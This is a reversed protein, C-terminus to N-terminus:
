KTEQTEKLHRVTAAVGHELEYELVDALWACYRRRCKGYDGEWMPVSNYADKPTLDAHPIPYVWNGSFEQWYESYTVSTGLCGVNTCVDVEVDTPTGGSALRRLEKIKDTM